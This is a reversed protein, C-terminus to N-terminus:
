VVDPEAACFREDKLVLVPVTCSEVVQRSVSGM